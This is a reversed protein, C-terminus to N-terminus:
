ECVCHSSFCGRAAGQGSGTMRGGSVTGKQLPPEADDTEAGRQKQATRRNELTFLAAGSPGPARWGPLERRESVRRGRSPKRHVPSRRRDGGPASVRTPPVSLAIWPTQPSAKFQQSQAGQLRGEKGVPLLTASCSQTEPALAPYVPPPLPGAQKRDGWRDAM